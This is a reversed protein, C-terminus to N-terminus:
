RVWMVEAPNDPNYKVKLRSGVQLESLDFHSLIERAESTFSGTIAKVKVRMKVQPKKNVYLGTKRFGLLEADAEFGTKALRRKMLAVKVLPLVTVSLILAVFLVVGTSFLTLKVTTKKISSKQKPISPPSAYFVSGVKYQTPGPM